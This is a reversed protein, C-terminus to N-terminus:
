YDIGFEERSRYNIKQAQQNRLNTLSIEDRSLM